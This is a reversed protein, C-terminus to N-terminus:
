KSQMTWVGDWDAGPPTQQYIKCRDRYLASPGDSPEEGLAAEFAKIAAQWDRQRYRDLGEAFADLVAAMNPFTEPTHHDLAEFIKIARDQGKVRILDLERLRAPSKLAKAVTESILVSTGYYKNAGELRAALNVSDGIVTYDMRRLSGINGSIVEGLAIGVGIDIHPDGAAQHRENFSRLASMMENAVIVASDADRDTSRPTGFVAMISDGIFKDLVGDHQFVVEVMDTFYDNLVSVTGRAGLQEAITTFRRIDSFLVAVEQAKGGLAADGAEVLQDVLQRSMYRSMTSKIRKERSIDEFVLMGGIVEEAVDVLPVSTMNVSTRNDDALHVETDVILDMKGSIAIKALSDAIWQNGSHFVDTAALGIPVNKEWGLTREAAANVKIIRNDADLTVVGNSLSKLISENYNRANLVDEFLKANELAVAVQSGFALLRAAATEDFVGDNKKNLVQVVGLKAGEKSHLPACLINRTRFGTQRDVAQNFRDDAYADPIHLVEGSSLCAGVLGATSPIRIEKMEMGEAVRSWLEDTAADYLFLSSREAELIESATSIIMRLLKDLNLESSMATTVELIRAEDQQARRRQEIGRRRQEEITLLDRYSRLNSILATFLKPATLEAKSKYDNIDYRLIVDREPAQGPQGTRLIIRVKDNKLHERIYQVLELGAHDHEMVVDLLVLAIETNEALLKEAEAASYASIFQAAHGLFSFDRLVLKTVNHIEHEDDVILVNWTFSDKSVPKAEPDEDAFALLENQNETM